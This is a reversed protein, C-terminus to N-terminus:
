NEVKTQTEEELVQGLTKANEVPQLTEPDLQVAEAKLIEQLQEQAKEYNERDQYLSMTMLLIREVVTFVQTKIVCIKNDISYLQPFIDFKQMLGIIQNTFGYFGLDEVSIFHFRNVKLERMDVENLKKIDTAM